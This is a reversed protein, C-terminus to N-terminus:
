RVSENAAGRGEVEVEENTQDHVRVGEPRGDGGHRTHETEQERESERGCPAKQCGCLAAYVASHVSQSTKRLM